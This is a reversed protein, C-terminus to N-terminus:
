NQSFACGVLLSALVGVGFVFERGLGVNKKRGELVCFFKSFM